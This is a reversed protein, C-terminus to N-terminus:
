SQNTYSVKEVGRRNQIIGKSSLTNKAASKKGKLVYHWEKRAQLSEMTFDVSLRILIGKYKVTKEREAKFIRKIM